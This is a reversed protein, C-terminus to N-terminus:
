LKLIGRKPYHRFEVSGDKGSDVRQVSKVGRGPEASSRRIRDWVAAEWPRRRPCGAGGTNIVRM